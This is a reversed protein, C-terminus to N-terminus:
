RVIAARGAKALRGEASPYAIVGTAWSSSAKSIPAGFGMQPRLGRFRRETARHRPRGLPNVLGHRHLVAHITSKAPIRFDQDLRRVLLERVKRAGWHPKERKCAVILQEIQPPLQNADFGAPALSRDAGRAWAGQVSRLDQLRDQALRRVRSLCGDDGRGGSAPRCVAFACGYGFVKGPCGCRGGPM